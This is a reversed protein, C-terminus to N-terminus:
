INYLPQRSHLSFKGRSTSGNATNLIFYKHKAGARLSTVEFVYMSCTEAWRGCSGETRRKPVANSKVQVEPLKRDQPHATVSLCHRKVPDVGAAQSVWAEALVTCLMGHCCM